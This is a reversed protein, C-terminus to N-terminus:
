TCSRMFLLALVIGLAIPFAKLISWGLYAGGVASAKKGAVIAEDKMRLVQEPVSIDQNLFDAIKRASMDRDQQRTQKLKERERKLFDAIERDVDNM